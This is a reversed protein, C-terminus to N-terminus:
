SKKRCIHFIVNEIVLKPTRGSSKLELDADKLCEFISILEEKKFKDSKKLLQWVPYPSKSNKAILLDTATKSKKKSTKKHQDEAKGQSDDDSFFRDREEIEKLLANDYEEIAPVTVSTFQPYSFGPEWAKGYRSGTFGKISCLSAHEPL